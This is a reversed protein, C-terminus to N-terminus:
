VLFRTNLSSIIANKTMKQINIPDDYPYQNLIM